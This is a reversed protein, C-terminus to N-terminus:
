ANNAIEDSREEKEREREEGRGRERGPLQKVGLEVHNRSQLLIFVGDHVRVQVHKHVVNSIMHASIHLIQFKQVIEQTLGVVVKVRVRLPLYSNM